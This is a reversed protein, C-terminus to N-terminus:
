VELNLKIFGYTRLEYSSVGMKKSAEIYNKAKVERIKGKIDLCYKKVKM